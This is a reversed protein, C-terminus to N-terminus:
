AVPPSTKPALRLLPQGQIALHQPLSVRDRAPSATVVIDAGSPATAPAWAAPCLKCHADEEHERHDPPAERGPAAAHVLEGHAACRTHQEVAQHVFGALDGLLFLLVLVGPWLRGPRRLRQLRSLM